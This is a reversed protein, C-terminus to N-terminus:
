RKATQSLSRKYTLQAIDLQADYYWIHDVNGGQQWLLAIQDGRAVVLLKPPRENGTDYLRNYDPLRDAMHRSFLPTGDGDLFFLDGDSTWAVYRDAQPDYTLSNIDVNDLSRFDLWGGANVDFRYLFGEGGLSALTVYHRKSDYAVDMPWSLSPFNDPMGLKTRVGSAPDTVQFDHSVVQYIRGDREAKVMREDALIPSSQVDAPGQLSWLAKGFDRTTLQFQMPKLPALPKEGQLTLQAQPPDLESVTVQNPLAYDGRFADIRQVGFLENLGRLLAAFNGSDKEYSYPLKTQFVPASASSQVSPQEYASVLIGKIETGPSADVRWAIKDYSSLVLLVAKGPRDVTVRVITGASAQNAAEYGSIVVIEAGEALEAPPTSPILVASESHPAPTAARIAPQPATIRVEPSAPRQSLLVRNLRLEQFYLAGLGATAIALVVCGGLAFRLPLNTPRAPAGATADVQTLSNLAREVKAYIAGCQPCAETAQGVAAHGCKLCTKTM